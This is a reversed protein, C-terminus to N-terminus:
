GGSVALRSLGRNCMWRGLGFLAATWFVSHLILPLADTAPINGSYLRFPVDALGRFPLFNLVPQAWDPFLPLPIVMGSCITAVAFTLSYIGEGSVTWLLGAAMVTSIAAALFLATVTSAMWAAACAPSAPLSLGFFLGALILMPVARLITPALRRAAHRAYWLAHFDVPRVLEYSVSGTQIMPRIEPEINWPIMGLMAQGLWVYDRVAAISMPQTATSSRYFAELVMIRLFGWFIQTLLGAFAAARYQLLAIFRARFIALYPRV